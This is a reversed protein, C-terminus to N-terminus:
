LDGSDGAVDMGMDLSHLAATNSGYLESCGDSLLKSLESSQHGYVSHQALHELDETAAIM